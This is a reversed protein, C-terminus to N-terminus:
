EREPYANQLLEQRSEFRERVKELILSVYKSTGQKLDAPHLDGAVFAEELQDYASYEIPGGFKEPRDILFIEERRELFPFIVNKVMALVGNGEIEKEPCYSKNIKKKIQKPTDLCDIKSGTDSASMKGGSLGPLLPNFVCIPKDYGITPLIERSLMYIGRQDIGGFAIDCGLHPVDLSQMLPYIFSGLKADDKQRVVEAGARKSRNFTTVSSLKLLELSYKESLEFDTGTVFELKSIDVGLGELLGIVIQRYYETRHELLEFPSKLDDLLAHINALLIKFHVGVDLFDAIKAMPILYGTHVRGTPATGWYASVREKTLLERLEGEDVIEQTNRKILEFAREPNEVM